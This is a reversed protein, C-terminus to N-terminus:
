IKHKEIDETQKKLEKIAKEFTAIEDILLATIEEIKAM